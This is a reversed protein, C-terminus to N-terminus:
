LAAAVDILRGTEIDTPGIDGAERLLDALADRVMADSTGEVQVDALPYSSDSMVYDNAALLYEADPDLPTGDDLTVSVLRDGAERSSDYTVVIGSVQLYGGAAGPLGSLGAELTEMILSGTVTATQIYNDFPYTNYVDEMTIDGEQIPARIAGGNVLAIRAGTVERMADTALDGMLVEGLRSETREGSLDGSAHGIVVSLYESQEERIGDVVAQVAPDRGCDDVLTATAQGDEVTVVGVHQIYCGTSAILTDSDRLEISGDAVEGGSMVTHSHGDICVDIGDVDSCLMDSTYSSSPDVGLHTLAVVLDVDESRLADVAEEAAAAPDTVTVGDMYGAMVMGPTDPSLIGFVGLSVGDREIISYAPFVTEGTDDWVLNACVTGFDLEDAYGLYTDLSYDFEHNGPCMLDYGVANMVDVTSAGHSLSTTATGQFADGADLIFVTYGADEYDQAVESVAAFGLYEDYYGHSDNTHVIAIRADGEDDFTVFSFVLAILVVAAAVAAIAMNGKKM